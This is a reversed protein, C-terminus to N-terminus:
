HIPNLYTPNPTATHANPLAVPLTIDPLATFYTFLNVSNMTEVPSDIKKHRKRIKKLLTSLKGRTNKTEKPNPNESPTRFVPIDHSYYQKYNHEGYIAM